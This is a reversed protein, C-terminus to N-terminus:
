IIYDRFFIEKNIILPHGTCLKLIDEKEPTGSCTRWTGARARLVRPGARDKRCGPDELGLAPLTCHSYPSICKRWAPYIDRKGSHFSLFTQTKDERTLPLDSHKGLETARSGLAAGHTRTDQPVETRGPEKRGGPSPGGPQETWPIRWALLSSHTAM